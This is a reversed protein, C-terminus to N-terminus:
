RPAKSQRGVDVKVDPSPTPAYPHESPTTVRPQPHATPAVPAAAAANALLAEDEAKKLNAEARLRDAEAARKAERSTDLSEPLQENVGVRVLMPALGGVITGDHGKKCFYGAGLERSHHCEERGCDTYHIAHDYQSPIQASQGAKIEYRQVSFSKGEGEQIDVHMDNPTPNMWTTFTAIRPTQPTPM